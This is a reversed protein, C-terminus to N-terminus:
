AVAPKKLKSRSKESHTETTSAAPAKEESKKESKGATGTSTETEAKAAAKYGESRYDTCYFGSGKFIIGAGAGILRQLTNRRCKPCKRIPEATISQFMELHHGCAGCEYEYTPM